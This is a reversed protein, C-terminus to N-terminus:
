ECGGQAWSRLNQKFTGGYPHQKTLNESGADSLYTNAQECLNVRQWDHCNSCQQDKWYSEPLGEVPPFLPNGKILEALTQGVIEPDGTALPVDFLVTTAPLETAPEEVATEASAALEDALLAVLRSTALDSYDGNPYTELFKVFDASVVSKEIAQWATTEPDGVPPDEPDLASSVYLSKSAALEIAALDLFPDAQVLVEALQRAFTANQAAEGPLPSAFIVLNGDEARTEVFGGDEIEGTYSDFVLISKKDQDWVLPSLLTSMAVASVPLNAVDDLAIDAPLLFNEGGLGIGQGVYYVFGVSGQEAQELRQTYDFIGAQMEAASADELRQVDFGIASLGVEMALASEGAHAVSSVNQYSENGIVLAIREQAFTVAPFSSLACFAALLRFFM